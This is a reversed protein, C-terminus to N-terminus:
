SRFFPSVEDDDDDDDDDVFKMAVCIEFLVEPGCVQDGASIDAAVFRGHDTGRRRQLWLLGCHQGLVCFGGLQTILVNSQENSVADSAM